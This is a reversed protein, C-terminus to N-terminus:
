AGIVVIPTQIEEVKKILKGKKVEEITSILADGHTPTPNTNVNPRRPTFTVGKAEILDQVRNQFAFCNELTHGPTGMLFECHANVDYEPPYPFTTPKLERLTLLGEKQLYPFIHNYPM